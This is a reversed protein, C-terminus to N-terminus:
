IRTWSSVCTRCTRDAPAATFPWTDIVLETRADAAVMQDRVLGAAFLWPRIYTDERSDNAKMLDLIAARIENHSWLCNLRALRASSLLRAVHEDLRFCFLEGQSHNWYAKIGEFIAAVSAHGVSSVHVTAEAWPVLQGDRWLFRAHVSPDKIHSNIM